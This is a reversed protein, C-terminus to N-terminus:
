VGVLEKLTELEKLLELNELMEDDPHPVNDSITPPQIVSNHLTQSVPSFVNVSFILLAAAFGGAVLPLALRRRNSLDTVRAALRVPYHPNLEYQGQPFTQMERELQQQRQRCDPCSKLHRHAALLNRSAPDEGYYLLTLDQETLCKMETM